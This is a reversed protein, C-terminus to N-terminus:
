IIEQILKAATKFGAMRLSMQTAFALENSTNNSRLYETKRHKTRLSSEEFSIVPKRGSTSPYTNQHVLSLHMIM